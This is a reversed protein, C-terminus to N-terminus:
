SAGCSSSSARSAAWWRSSALHPQAVPGPRDLAPLGTAEVPDPRRRRQRGPARAPADRADVPRREDLAARLVAGPGRPLGARRHPHRDPVRQRVRRGHRLPERVGVPPDLTSWDISGFGIIWAPVSLLLGVVGLLLGDVIYAVVRPFTGGYEIGPLTAAPPAWAMGPANGGQPAYGPPAYGPAYGPPGAPGAGAVRGGAAAHASRSAARRGAASGFAAAPGPCRRPPRCPTCAAARGADALRCADRRRPQGPGSGRRSREPEDADEM